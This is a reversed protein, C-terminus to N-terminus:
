NLLKDLVESTRGAFIAAGRALSNDYDLRIFHMSLDTMVSDFVLSKIRDELMTQFAPGLELMQGTIILRDMPYSNLQGSIAKGLYDAASEVEETIEPHGEQFMKCIHDFSLDKKNLRNRCSQRLARISAVTELCGRHGCGCLIGDPVSISHGFEGSHNNRIFLFNGQEAILSGIGSGSSILMVSGSNFEPFIRTLFAMKSVLHDCITVQCDANLNFFPRLEVGNLAPLAAAKELKFDPGCYSGFVAAGMGAFNEGTMKRLNKIIRAVAELFQERGPVDDFIIEERARVVGRLDTIVGNVREAELSIGILAPGEPNFELKQQPRGHVPGTKEGHILINRKILERVARTVTTNDCGTRRAIETRSLSDAQLMIELVTKLNKNKIDNLKLIKERM